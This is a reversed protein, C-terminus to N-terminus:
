SSQRASSSPSLVTSQTPFLCHNLFFTSLQDSKLVTSDLLMWLRPPLDYCQRARTSRWPRFAEYVLRVCQTESRGQLSGCVVKEENPVDDTWSQVGEFSRQTFTLEVGERVGHVPVDVWSRQWRKLRRISDHM